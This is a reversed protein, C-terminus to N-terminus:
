RPRGPHVEGEQLAPRGGANGPLPRPRFGEPRRHGSEGCGQLLCHCGQRVQAHLAANCGHWTISCPQPSLLKRVEEPQM